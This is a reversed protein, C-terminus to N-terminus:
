SWTSRLRPTPPMQSMSAGPVGIYSEACKMELRVTEPKLPKGIGSLRGRRDPLPGRVLRGDLAEGSLHAVAEGVAAWVLEAAAPHQDDACAVRPAVDRAVGRGRSLGRRDAHTTAVPEDGLM